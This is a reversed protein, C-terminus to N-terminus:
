LTKFYAKYHQCGKARLHHAVATICTAEGGYEVDDPQQTAPQPSSDCMNDKAYQYVEGDNTNGEAALM